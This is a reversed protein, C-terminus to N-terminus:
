GEISSWMLVKYVKAESSVCLEGGGALLWGVFFSLSPTLTISLM